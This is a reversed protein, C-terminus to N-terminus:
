KINKDTIILIRSLYIKLIFKINKCSSTIYICAKIKRKPIEIHRLSLECTRISINELLMSLFFRLKISLIPKENKTMGKQMKTIYSLEDIIVLDHVISSLELSGPPNGITYM